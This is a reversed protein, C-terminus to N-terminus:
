VRNLETIHWPVVFEKYYEQLADICGRFGPKKEFEEHHADVSKWNILLLQDEPNEILPSIWYGDCGPEENLIGTVVKNFQSYYGATGGEVVKTLAVELAPSSLISELHQRDSLNSHDMLAHTGWSVKRGNLAPQITKHFLGYAESTFFTHSAALSEWLCLAVQTYRDEFKKGRWVAKLGSAKQLIQFAPALDLSIEEIKAPRHPIIILQLAEQASM